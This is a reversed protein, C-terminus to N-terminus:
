SISNNVARPNGLPLNRVVRILFQDLHEDLQLPHAEVLLHSVLMAAQRKYRKVNLKLPRMETGWFCAVDLTGFDCFAVPSMFNIDVFWHSVEAFEYWLHRVLDTEQTAIHVDMPNEDGETDRQVPYRGSLLPKGGLSPPSQKQRQECM